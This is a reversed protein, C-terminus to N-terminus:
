GLFGEKRLALLIRKVSTVSIETKKSIFIPARNKSTLIVRLIKGRLERESGRFPSQKKYHASKVNPNKREAKGLFSGYDMLAYYWERPNKTDVTKEVYRLLETDSINKREAFFRHIYVRRINTEIFATPVDFAFASLAGATGRGIGPLTRLTKEDRPIHGRYKKDVIEATRKLFLARRNYGLGQWVSLVEHLSAHALRRFTPFLSIFEKYKKMVRETQTQQLMLESVLIRYPNRTRRWPFDRGHTNYFNWVM